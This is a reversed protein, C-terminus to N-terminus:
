DWKWSAGIWMSQRCGPSARLRSAPGLTRRLMEATGEILPHLEVTEPKLEQRRAFALMRKTLTAGREASEIAGEILRTMRPDDVPLRKKLLSLNGLVAMLLNNFDHAVGTLQGLNEMKRMEHVQALATERERTRQEVRRELESNAEALETTRV